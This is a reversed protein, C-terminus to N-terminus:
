LTNTGRKVFKTADITFRWYGGRHFGAEQGNIYVTAEYDVAEFNLLIRESSNSWKPLDFETSFWATTVDLTQIGSLGSEICSPVLVDQNLAGPAPIAGQGDDPAFKWIGNLSQWNERQLQPRPYEPWPDTGVDYTWDTDLPPTQVEYGLAIHGLLPVALSTFLGLRM